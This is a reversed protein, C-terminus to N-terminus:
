NISCILHAYLAHLLESQDAAPSRGGLPGDRVDYGHPVVAIPNDLFGPWPVRIDPVDMHTATVIFSRINVGLDRHFYDLYGIAIGFM